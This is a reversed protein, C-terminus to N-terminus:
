LATLEDKIIELEDKPFFSLFTMELADMLSFGDECLEATEQTLSMGPCYSLESSEYRSRLSNAFEVITAIDSKKAKTRQSLIRCEEEKSIHDIPIVSFRRKFAPDIQVTGTYENGINATAIMLMEPHIKVDREETGLAQDIQISKEGELIPFLINTAASPARNVEDLIIIGPKQIAELFPARDFYSGRVPDHRHSGFMTTIADQKAAFNIRIVPKQHKIAVISALKTKGTSNTGTFLIHRKRNVAVLIRAWKKADIYYDDLDPTPVPFREMLDKIKSNTKISFPKESEREKKLKNLRPPRGSEGFEKFLSAIDPVDEILGVDGTTRYYSKRNPNEVL